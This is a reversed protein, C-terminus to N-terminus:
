LCLRWAATSLQMQHNSVASRRAPSQEVDPACCTIRGCCIIRIARRPAAVPASTQYNFQLVRRSLQHRYRFLSLRGLLHAPRRDAGQLTLDAQGSYLDETLRSFLHDLRLALFAAHGPYAGNCQQGAVAPNSVTTIPPHRDHDTPSCLYDFQREYPANRKLTAHCRARDLEPAASFQLEGVLQTEFLQREFWNTNQQFRLGSSQQVADGGLARGQKLTDRIYVNTWRITTTASSM